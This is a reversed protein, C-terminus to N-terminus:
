DKAGGILRIAHDTRNVIEIRAERQEGPFGTGVDVLKPYLSVREGRFHALAADPSGYFVFALSTLSALVIAAGVLGYVAPLFSALLLRPQRRVAAFDPRGLILALLVLLDIGCAYWPSVSLQGFCGCSARGILGQYASVAAFGAFVGLATVWSGIAQKGLLLWLALFIEFEIIGIQIAPMSFLGMRAVPEVAMGQLKLGAAALLLGALVRSVWSYPVKCRMM